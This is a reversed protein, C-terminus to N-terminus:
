STKIQKPKRARPIRAIAQKIIPWRELSPLTRDPNKRSEPSFWRDITSRPPPQVGWKDGGDDLGGIDLELYLKALEKVLAVRFGPEEIRRMWPQMEVDIAEVLGPSRKQPPLPEM